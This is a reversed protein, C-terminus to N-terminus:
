STNVSESCQLMEVRFRARVARSRTAGDQLIPNAPHVSQPIPVLSSRHRVICLTSSLTVGSAAALQKRWLLLASPM